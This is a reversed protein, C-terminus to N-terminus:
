AQDGNANVPVLSPSTAEGDRIGFGEWYGTVVLKVLEMADM